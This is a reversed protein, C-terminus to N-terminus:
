VALQQAAKRGEDTLTTTRHKDTAEQILGRRLLADHTVINLHHYPRGFSTNPHNDFQLKTALRRKMAPSLRM